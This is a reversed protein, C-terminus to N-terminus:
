KPAAAEEMVIPESPRPTRQWSRPGRGALMQSYLFLKWFFFRPVALFLRGVAAAGSIQMGGILVYAVLSAIAIASILLVWSSVWDVAVGMGVAFSVGLWYLVAMALPPASWDLVAIAGRLKGRILLGRKGRLGFLMAPLKTWTHVQGTEWRLKQTSMAARDDPLPSRVLAAALFRPSIDANLLDYSIALDETLHDEFHITSLVDARFCMGTGFLQTPISLVNMGRPRIWNKLAFAITAASHLKKGSTRLTSHSEDLIYAAQTVKAGTDFARVTQELLNPSVTCDADLIMVARQTLPLQAKQALWALGDRLAAPKGRPGSSRELVDAHAQRALSATRDTCHDAIVLVRGIRNHATQLRLTELLRPLLIEENHAPILIDITIPDTTHLKTQRAPRTPLAALLVYFLWPLWWILPPVLLLTSVLTLTLQLNTM